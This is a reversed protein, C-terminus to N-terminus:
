DDKKPLPIGRVASSRRPEEVPEFRTEGHDPTVVPLDKVSIARPTKDPDTSLLGRLRRKIVGLDNQALPLRDLLDAIERLKSSVLVRKAGEEVVFSGLMSVLAELEEVTKIAAGLLTDLM